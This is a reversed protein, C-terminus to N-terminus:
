RSKKLAPAIDIAIPMLATVTGMSTGMSFSLICGIIFIGPLIMNGPLLKLGLNSVSSVAGMGGAVTYFIGAELFIFFMLILTDDGGGKCMDTVIDDFSLNDAKRKKICFILAAILAILIGVNLPMTGANGTIITCLIYLALFIILPLLGIFNGKKNRDM